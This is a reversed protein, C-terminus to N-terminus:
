KWFTLLDSSHSVLSSFSDAVFRQPTAEQKYTPQHRRPKTPSPTRSASRLKRPTFILLTQEAARISGSKERVRRRTLDDLQFCISGRRFVDDFTTATTRREARLKNEIEGQTRRPHCFRPQLKRLVVEKCIRGSIELHAEIVVDLNALLDERSDPSWVKNRRRPTHDPRRRGM